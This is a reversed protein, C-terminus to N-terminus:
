VIKPKKALHNFISVTEYIPRISKLGHFYMSFDRYWSMNCQNCKIMKLDKNGLDWLSGLPKPLHMCPYVNFFWDVFLVKSGGYCHYQAKSPHTLYNIINKMSSASNLINYKGTKKLRMVDRLAKIIDEPSLKVTEGGLPYVISKSIEPYNVSIYDFGIKNIKDFLLGLKDHSEKWILVSAMTKIGYKRALAVGKEIHGMLGPIGRNKEVVNADDSDISVCLIDLHARKLKRMTEETLLRADACLLLTHIHKLTCHRVFDFVHPNFLPDGGTLTIHAVGLHAMKDIAKFGNARSIIVKEKQKWIGCFTCKATCCNTIGFEAVRIKNTMFKKLFNATKKRIM